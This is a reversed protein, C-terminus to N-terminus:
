SEEKNVFVEVKVQEVESDIDNLAAETLFKIDDDRDYLEAYIDASM